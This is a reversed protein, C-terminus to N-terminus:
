GCLSYYIQSYTEGRGGRIEGDLVEWGYPESGGRGGEAAEASAGVGDDADVEGVGGGGPLGALVVVEAEGGEGDPLAVGKRRGGKGRGGSGCRVM